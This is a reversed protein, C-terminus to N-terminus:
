IILDFEKKIDLGTEKSYYDPASLMYVDGFLNQVIGSEIMYDFEYKNVSACYRQLKRMASCAGFKLSEILKANENCPIVIGLAEKEIFNFRQAYSRFPIGKVRMDGGMLETISNTEIESDSVAFIRDYYEQVADQSSINEFEEFLKRTINAKVAIERHLTGLEFVFVNGFKMKGERNCRGGSQVISDGQSNRLIRCLTTAACNRRKRLINRSARCGATM